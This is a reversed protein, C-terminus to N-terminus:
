DSKKKIVEMVNEESDVIGDFEEDIPEEIDVDIDADITIENDTTYTKENTEENFTNKVERKQIKEKPNQEKKGILPSLFNDFYKQPTFYVLVFVALLLIFLKEYGNIYALLAIFILILSADKMKLKINSVKCQTFLIFIIIGVCFLSVIVNNYNKNSTSFIEVASEDTLVM